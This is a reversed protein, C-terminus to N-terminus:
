RSSMVCVYVFFYSGVYGCGFGDHLIEHEKVLKQCIFSYQEPTPYMTHVMVMTALTSVIECRVASTIAMKDGSSLATMTRASFNQPIIFSLHLTENGSFRLSQVAKPSGSVTTTNM